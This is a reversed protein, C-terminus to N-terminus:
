SMGGNVISIREPEWADQVARRLAEEHRAAEGYVALPPLDLVVMNLLEPTGAHVGCSVHFSLRQDGHGGRGSLLFGLEGIAEGPVDDRFSQGILLLQRAAAPHGLVPVTGASPSIVAEWGPPTAPSLRELASLMARMREACQMTDEPRDGWQAILCPRETGPADRTVPPQDRIPTYTVLFQDGLGAQALLRRVPHVAAPEAVHWGIRCGPAAWAEQRARMLLEHRVALRAHPYGAAAVLARGPSVAGLILNAEPAWGDYRIGNVVHGNGPGAIQQRYQDDRWSREVPVPRNRGPGGARGAGGAPAATEHTVYESDPEWAEALSRLMAASRRAWATGAQEAPPLALVVANAPGPQGASVGCRVTLGVPAGDAAPGGGVAHLRYGLEPLLESNENSYQGGALLLQAVAHEDMILPVPHEQGPVAAHWGSEGSLGKADLADLMALFRRACRDVSEQRGGWYVAVSVWSPEGPPVAASARVAEGASAAGGDTPGAVDAASAGGEAPWAAGEAPRAVDATGAGAPAGPRGHVVKVHGALCNEGLFQGVAGATAADPAHWEIARGRAGRVQREALELVAAAAVVRLADQPEGPVLAAAWRPDVAQLLTGPQGDAGPRYGDFPVPKGTLPDAAVYGFSRPIRAVQERYAWYWEDGAAAGADSMGQQGTGIGRM